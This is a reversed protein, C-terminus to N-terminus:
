TNRAVFEGMRLLVKQSYICSKTCHVSVSASRHWPRSPFGDRPESVTGAGSAPSKTSNSRSHSSILRCSTVDWPVHLKITDETKLHSPFTVTYVKHQERAAFSPVKMWEENLLRVVPGFGRGFRARWMTCHIAEEKLYSYGRREKLIDLLKKRRRGRRGTV